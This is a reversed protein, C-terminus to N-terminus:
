SPQHPDTFPRPAFGEDGIDAQTASRAKLRAVLNAAAVRSSLGLEELSRRVIPLANDPAAPLDYMPASGTASGKMARAGDSTVGSLSAQPRFASKTGSIPPGCAGRPVQDIGDDHGAARFGTRVRLSTGSVM